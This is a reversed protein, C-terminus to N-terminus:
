AGRGLVAVLQDLLPRQGAVLRRRALDLDCWEVRDVEPFEALKGSRPPWQMSFMGPVIAAPDLEGEAAWVSLRKGSPQKLEGLAVLSDPSVPLPLGLEEEWERVAADRAPEPDVYEGKPVSWAADDKGAWFPGGMHAILVELEGDGGDACPSLRWLLVGASRVPM